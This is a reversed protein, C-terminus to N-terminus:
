RIETTKGPHKSFYKMNPSATQTPYFGSHAAKMRARIAEKPSLHAEPCEKKTVTELVV